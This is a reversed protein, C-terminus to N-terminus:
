ILSTADPPAWRGLRTGARRTHPARPRGPPDITVLQPLQMTRGCPM